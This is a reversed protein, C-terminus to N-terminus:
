EKNDHTKNQVRYFQTTFSKGSKGSVKVYMVKSNLKQYEITNPFDHQNNEFTFTTNKCKTLKFAVPIPNHPVKAFYFVEGSMEVLRLSEDSNVTQGAGEFTKDSLKAWLETTLPQQKQTQWEGLLWTLDTLSHCSAANVKSSLMITAILLVKVSLNKM